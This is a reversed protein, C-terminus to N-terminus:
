KKATKKKAMPPAGINADISMASLTVATKANDTERSVHLAITVRLDPASGAKVKFATVYSDEKAGAKFKKVEVHDNVSIVLHASAGELQIISGQVAFHIDEKPAKGSLPMVFSSTKTAIPPPSVGKESRVELGSYTGTLALGDDSVAITAEVGSQFSAKKAFTLGADKAAVPMYAFIGFASLMLLTFIRKIM